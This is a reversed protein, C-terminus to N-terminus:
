IFHKEEIKLDKKGLQYLNFSIISFNKLFICAEMKSDGHIPNFKLIIEFGYYLYFIMVNDTLHDNQSTNLWYFWYIFKKIKKKISRKFNIKINKKFFGAENSRIMSM